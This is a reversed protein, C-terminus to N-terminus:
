PDISGFAKWTGPSGSATCVYGVKGGATPVRTYVRDGVTWTGATPASPYTTFFDVNLSHRIDSVNDFVHFEIPSFKVTLGTAPSIGYPFIIVNVDTVTTLAKAFVTVLIEEEENFSLLNKQYNYIPAEWSGLAASNSGNIYFQIYPDLNSSSTRTMLFTGVIYQGSTAAITHTAKSYNGTGSTTYTELPIKEYSLKNDSYTSSPSNQRFSASTTRVIQGNVANIDRQATNAMFGFARTSASTDEYKNSKNVQASELLVQPWFPDLIEVDYANVCLVKYDASVGSSYFNKGVVGHRCDGDLKIVFDGSNVEFYNNAIEFSRSNLVLITDAQGELINNNIEGGFMSVRMGNTNNGADNRNFTFGNVQVYNAGSTITDIIYDCFQINSQVIQLDGLQGQTLNGATPTGKIAHFARTFWRIGVNQFFFGRSFSAEGGMDWYFASASRSVDSNGVVTLGKFTINNTTITNTTRNMLDFGNGTHAIKITTGVDTFYPKSWQHVFNAGVIQINGNPFSVTSTLTYTGFPVNITGGDPLANIAAQFASTSDSVGTPDAGYDIVSINAGAIMRNHAQTLAM